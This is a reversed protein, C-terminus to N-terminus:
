SVELEQDRRFGGHGKNKQPQNGYSLAGSNRGDYRVKRSLGFEISRDSPLGGDTPAKAVASPADGLRKRDM